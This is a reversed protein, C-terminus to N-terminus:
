TVNLHLNEPCTELKHRRFWIMSLVQTWFGKWNEACLKVEYCPAALLMTFPMNESFHTNHILRAICSGVGQTQGPAHCWGAFWAHHQTNASHATPDWQFVPWQHLCKTQPSSPWIRLNKYIQRSELSLLHKKCPCTFFCLFNYINKYLVCVWMCVCM